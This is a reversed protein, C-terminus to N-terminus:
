KGLPNIRPLLSLTKAMMFAPYSKLYSPCFRIARALYAAAVRYERHGMFQLAAHCRVKALRRMARRPQLLDRGGQEFYFRELMESKVRHARLRDRRSLSMEHLRRLALPENVLGIEFRTSARLWFEHGVCVPLSQDFGGVADIVRRHFVASPDNIFIRHFLKETVKGKHCHGARSKIPRGSFDMPPMPHYVISLKPHAQLYAMCKALKEERWLDDGDLLAIYQGRADEIARNRARAVGGHEIHLVWMQPWGAALGKAVELTSDTSGDDVVIVELDQYTQRKVSEIADRLFAACNYAPIVVSVTPSGNKM